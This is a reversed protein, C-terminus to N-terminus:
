LIAYALGLIRARGNDLGEIVDRDFLAALNFGGCVLGSMGSQSPNSFSESPHQWEIPLSHIIANLHPQVFLPIEV